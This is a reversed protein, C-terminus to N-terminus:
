MSPIKKATWNPLEEFKTFRSAYGVSDRLIWISNTQFALFDYNYQHFVSIDKKHVKLFQATEEAIIIRAHQSLLLNPAKCGSELQWVPVKPLDKLRLQRYHKPM